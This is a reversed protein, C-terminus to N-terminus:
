TFIGCADRGKLAAVSLLHVPRWLAGQIPACVKNKADKAVNEPDASGKFPNPLEPLDSLDGAM